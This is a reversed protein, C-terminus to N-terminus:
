RTLHIDFTQSEGDVTLTLGSEEPVGYRRPIPVIREPEAEAGTPPIPGGNAKPLQQNLRLGTPVRQPGQVVVRAAGRPVNPIAYRGDHVNGRVIQGDACYLVVSGSPVPRGEYTVTGAVEATGPGCGTLALAVV